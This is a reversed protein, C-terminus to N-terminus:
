FNPHVRSFIASGANLGLATMAEKITKRIAAVLQGGYFRAYAVSRDVYLMTDCAHARSNYAAQSATNATSGMCVLPTNSPQGSACTDGSYLSIPAGDESRDGNSKLTTPALVPLDAM